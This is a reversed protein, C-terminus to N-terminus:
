EVSFDLELLLNLLPCVIPLLSIRGVVHYLKGDGFIVKIMCGLESLGFCQKNGTDTELWDFVHKM